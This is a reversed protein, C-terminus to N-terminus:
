HCLKVLQRMADAAAQAAARDGFDVVNVTGDSRVVRVVWVEPQCSTSWRKGQSVANQTMDEAMSILSVETALRFPIGPDIDATVRGDVTTRWHFNIQCAAEDIVVNSAEATIRNTWTYNDSADRTTPRYNLTGQQVLLDRIAELSSRVPSVNQAYVGCAVACAAVSYACLRAVGKM